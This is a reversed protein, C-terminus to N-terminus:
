GRLRTNVGSTTKITNRQSLRHVVIVFVRCILELNSREYTVAMTTKNRKVLPGDYTAITQHHRPERLRFDHMLWKPSPYKVRDPRAAVQLYSNSMSTYAVKDLERLEEPRVEDVRMGVQCAQRRECLSCDGISRAAESVTTWYARQPSPRAKSILNTRECAREWASNKKATRLLAKQRDQTSVSGGDCPRM